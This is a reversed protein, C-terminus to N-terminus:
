YIFQFEPLMSVCWIFDALGGEGALLDLALRREEAVPERGLAHLYIRSVLAAGAFPGKRAGTPAGPEVRVLREFDPKEAFAFFRVDPGIDSQLSEREVGVVARFRTYGKGAIPYVIEEPARARVGAAFTKDRMAVPAGGLKVVGAPGIFEADAWVPRVREPSYSGMDVVLLRLEELGTVDIDVAVRNSSVKGSDFLNLPAPPLEGSMGKAARRLFQTITAGNAMELAQLTTSETNRETFVQDRIPRGMARALPTAARRWDRVYTGAKGQSNALVRWEGTVASITDAFQEATVRRRLPGRFVYEKADKEPDASEMGYARSTMIAAILWKLDYGHEVFGAALGDLLEPSWPEADMDDVPEVIGRGLLKKWYRNVLTRAFRGNERATFLKAAAERRSALSEGAGGDGLEPYLFKLEAIQGTRADCRVLELRDASFFAALGYADKLKWRSVFSDHCSNCKLNVGAFIQATNQAAQMVPTQSANVDGRWNVGMLFGEPDRENRPSLLRSVFENYPMNDELARLLWGTISQRGGHYNVGEDNRLLDNWFSVWHEAYNRWNALLRNVLRSRKDPRADALFERLQEPSPPLGWIDYYARRAFRADAVRSPPIRHKAFYPTLARDPTEPSADLALKAVWRPRAAPAGIRPRAGQDIWDRLLAIEGENLPEGAPPMREAAAATLRSVLLSEGSAGPIVVAGTRGGRLLDDYAGLALGGSRKDGSHCAFCRAALVPHIDRAYDVPAGSAAALVAFLCLLAKM